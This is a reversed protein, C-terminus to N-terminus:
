SWAAAREALSVSRCFAKAWWFYVAANLSINSGSGMVTVSSKGVVNANATTL